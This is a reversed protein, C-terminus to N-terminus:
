GDGSGKWCLVRGECWGVLGTVGEGGGGGGGGSCVRRGAMAMAGMAM